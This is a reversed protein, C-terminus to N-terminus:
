AIAPALEHSEQIKRFYAFFILSGAVYLAGAYYFPEPKTYDNAWLYGAIVYSGAFAGQWALQSLSLFSARIEEVTINMVYANLVPQPVLMLFSRVTYLVAVVILAPSYPLLILPVVSVIQCVAILTVSGRFEAFKPVVFWGVAIVANSLTIIMGVWMDSAGLSRNFIVPLWPIVLAAGFGILANQFSYMFLIRRTRKNFHARLSSPKRETEKVGLVYIIPVFACITTALFVLKFGTLTEPGLLDEMIPPGVFGLFTAITLGIQNVFGQVGYLFKMDAPKTKAVLLTTLSPWELSGGLSTLAYGVTFVALNKETLFLLLGAITCGLGVLFLKKRGVADALYGGFLYAIVSVASGIGGMLGIQESSFDIAAWYYILVYWLVGGIVGTFFSAKVIGKEERGAKSYYGATARAGDQGARAFGAL